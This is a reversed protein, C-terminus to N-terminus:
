EGRTARECPHSAQRHATRPVVQTLSCSQGPLPHQVLGLPVMWAVLPWCWQMVGWPGPQM